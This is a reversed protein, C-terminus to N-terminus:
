PLASPVGEATVGVPRVGGPRGVVVSYWSRALPVVPDPSLEVSRDIDGTLADATREGSTAWGRKDGAGRRSPDLVPYPPAAPIGPLSM